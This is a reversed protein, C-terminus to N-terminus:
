FMFVYLSFVVATTTIKGSPRGTTKVIIIRWRNMVYISSKLTTKLTYTKKKIKVNVMGFNFM